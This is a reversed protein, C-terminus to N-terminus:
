PCYGVQIHLKGVTREVCVPPVASSTAPVLLALVGVLALILLLAKKKM